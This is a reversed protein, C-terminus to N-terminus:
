LLRFLRFLLICSALSPLLKEPSLDEAVVKREKGSFLSETLLRFRLLRLSLQGLSNLECSHLTYRLARDRTLRSVAGKERSLGDDLIVV